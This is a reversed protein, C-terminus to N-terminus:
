KKENVFDPHKYREYGIRLNEQTILHEESAQSLSSVSNMEPHTM